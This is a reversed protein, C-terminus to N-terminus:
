KRSSKGRGNIAQSALQEHASRLYKRNYENLKEKEEAKAKKFALYEECSGHCGATRKTCDKCTAHIM